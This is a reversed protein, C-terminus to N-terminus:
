YLQLKHSNINKIDCPLQQLLTICIIIQIDQKLYQDHRFTYRKLMYNVHSNPSIITINHYCTYIFINEWRWNSLWGILRTTFNLIKSWNWCSYPAIFHMFKITNKVQWRYHDLWKFVKNTNWFSFLKNKKKKFKILIFFM